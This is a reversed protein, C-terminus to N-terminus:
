FGVSLGAFLGQFGLTHHNARTSLGINQEGPTTFRRPFPLNQWHLFEWGIRGSIDWGCWCDTYSLGVGIHWGPVAVCEDDVKFAIDSVPSLPGETPIDQIVQRNSTCQQGALLSISGKAFLKFCDCIEYDYMTGFKLGVGWYEGDYNIWRRQAPGVDVFENNIRFDTFLGEIGFFPTLTQCQTPCFDKAFLVDFSQYKFKLSAHIETLPGHAVQPHFLTPVVAGPNSVRVHDSHTPHIYTYSASLAWDCWIDDKKIYGRVGPEWCNDVYRYKLCQHETNSLLIPAGNASALAYDLDFCAKWYLFDAGIEFGGCWDGCYDCCEPMCPDCPSYSQANAHTMTLLGAALFAAFAHRIKTKTM